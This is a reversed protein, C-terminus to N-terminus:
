SPVFTDMLEELLMAPTVVKRSKDYVAKDKMMQRVMAIVKYTHQRNMGADQLVSRFNRIGGMGLVKSEIADMGVYFTLWQTGYKSRLRKVLEAEDDLSLTMQEWESPKGFVRSKMCKKYAYDLADHEMMCLDLLTSINLVRGVSKGDLARVEARMLNSYGSVSQDLKRAKMEAVKDYFACCIQTNLFQHGNPYERQNMRGANLMKFANGYQDVSMSMSAQKAVDVRFLKMTQHNAHVGLASLENSIRNISDSYEKSTPLCLLHSHNMKSPNFNVSLSLNGGTRIRSINYNAGTEKSNHYLINGRAINGRKDTLLYQGEATEPTLRSNSKIGWQGGMIDDVEFDFTTATIKDIGASHIPNM